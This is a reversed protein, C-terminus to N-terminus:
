VPSVKSKRASVNVRDYQCDLAGVHCLRDSQLKCVVVAIRLGVLRLEGLSQLQLPHSVCRSVIIGSIFPGEMLSLDLEYFELLVDDLASLLYKQNEFAAIGRALVSRYLSGIWM